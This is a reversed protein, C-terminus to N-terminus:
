EGAGHGFSSMSYAIRAEVWRVECRRRTIRWGADTRAFEDDFHVIRDTIEVIASTASRIAAFGRMESRGSATDGDVDIMANSMLHQCAIGRAKIKAIRSKMEASPCIQRVDNRVSGDEDRTPFDIVAGEAFVEDWLDLDHDWAQSYRYLLRTIAVQDDAESV